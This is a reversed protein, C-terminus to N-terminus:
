PEIYVLKLPVLYDAWLSAEDRQAPYVGANIEISKWDRGDKPLSYDLNRESIKKALREFFKENEQRTEAEKFPRRLFFSKYDVHKVQGGILMSTSDNPSSFLGAAQFDVGQYETPLPIHNVDIATFPHNFEAKLENIIESLWSQVSEYVTM